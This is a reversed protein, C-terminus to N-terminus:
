SDEKALKALVSHFVTPGFSNLPCTTDQCDAIRQLVVQGEEDACCHSCKYAIAGLFEAIKEAASGYRPSAAFAEAMATVEDEIFKATVQGPKNFSLINETM